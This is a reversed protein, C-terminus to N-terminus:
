KQTSKRQKVCAYVNFLLDGEATRRNAFRSHLSSQPLRACKFHRRLLRYFISEKEAYRTTQSILVVTREGSIDQLTQALARWVSLDEGYVVDAAFILDPPTRGTANDNAGWKLLEVSANSSSSAWGGKKGESESDEGLLATVVGNTALNARLLPLTPEDGDTAVVRMGLRAAVIATLGLGAGLEIARAGHWTEPLASACSGAAPDKEARLDCALSSAGRCLLEALVHSASWAASGTGAGGERWRQQLVVESPALNAFHYHQERKLLPGLLLPTFPVIATSSSACSCDDAMIPVLWVLLYLIVPFQDALSDFPFSPRLVIGHWLDFYLMRAHM